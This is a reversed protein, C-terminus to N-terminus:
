ELCDWEEIHISWQGKKTGDEHRTKSYPFEDYYKTNGIVAECTFLDKEELAEGLYEFGYENGHTVIAIRRSHNIFDNAERIAAERTSCVTVVNHVKHYPRWTQISSMVLFVHAM